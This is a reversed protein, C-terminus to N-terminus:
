APTQIADNPRKFHQHEDIATFCIRIDGRQGACCIGRETVRTEEEKIGAASRRKPRVKGLSEVASQRPSVTGATAVNPTEDVAVDFENARDRPFVNLTLTDRYPM